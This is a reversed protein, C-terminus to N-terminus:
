VPATERLAWPLLGMCHIQRNSTEVDEIHTPSCALCVHAYTCEERPEFIVVSAEALLLNCCCAGQELLGDDVASRVVYLLIDKADKGCVVNHMSVPLSLCPDLEVSPIHSYLHELGFAQSCCRVEHMSVSICTALWLFIAHSWPVTYGPLWLALGLGQSSSDTLTGPIPVNVMRDDRAVQMVSSCKRPMKNELLNMQGPFHGHSM